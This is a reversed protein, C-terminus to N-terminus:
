GPWTLPPTRTRSIWGDIKLVLRSSATAPTPIDVPLLAIAPSFAASAAGAVFTRRDITM